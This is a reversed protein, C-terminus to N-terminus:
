ASPHVPRSKGGSQEAEVGPKRQKPKRWARRHYTLQCLFFLGSIVRFDKGTRNCQREMFGLEPCPGDVAGTVIPQNVAQQTRTLLMMPPPIKVVVPIRARSRPSGNRIRKNHSM